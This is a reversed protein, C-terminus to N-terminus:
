QYVHIRDISQELVVYSVANWSTCEDELYIVCLYDLYVNVLSDGMIM